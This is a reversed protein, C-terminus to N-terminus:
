VILGETVSNFPQNHVKNHVEFNTDGGLTVSPFINKFQHELCQSCIFQSTRPQDASM